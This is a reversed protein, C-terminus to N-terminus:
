RCRRMGYFNGSDTGVFIDAFHGEKEFHVKYIPEEVADPSEYLPALLPLEYVVSVMIKDPHWIRKGVLSEKGVGEELAIERAIEISQEGSIKAGEITVIKVRAGLIGLSFLTAIIIVVGIVCLISVKIIKIRGIKSNKM